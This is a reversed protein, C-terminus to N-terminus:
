PRNAALVITQDDFRDSGFEHRLQAEDTAIGHLTAIMLICFLGTDVADLNEPAQLTAAQIMKETHSNSVISPGRFYAEQLLVSIGVGTKGLPTRL